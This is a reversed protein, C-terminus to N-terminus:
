IMYCLISVFGTSWPRHRSGGHETSGKYNGVSAVLGGFGLGSGWGFAKCDQLGLGEAGGVGYGSHIRVPEM